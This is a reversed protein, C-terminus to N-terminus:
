APTGPHRLYGAILHASDESKFRYNIAPSIFLRMPFFTNQEKFIRSLYIDFVLKHCFLQLKRQLVSQEARHCVEKLSLLLTGFGGYM